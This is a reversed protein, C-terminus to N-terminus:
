SNEGKKRTKLIITVVYTILILVVIFLFVTLIVDLYNIFFLSLLTMIIGASINGLIISILAPLFRMDLFAAVASGTWAGTGPLPVAVFAMVGFFKFKESLKGNVIKGSAEAKKVVKDAKNKLMDEISEAIKGIFKVKKLATLIPRLLLLLFPVVLSTGLVAIFFVTFPNLGMAFAVPVSGRLEIIPIMSIIIVTLIENNTLEKFFNIIADTM